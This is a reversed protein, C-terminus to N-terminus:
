QDEEKHALLDEGVRSHWQRCPSKLVKVGFKLSFNRCEPRLLMEVPKLLLRRSRLFPLLHAYVWACCPSM